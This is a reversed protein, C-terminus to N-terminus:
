SLCALCPSTVQGTQSEALTSFVIMAGRTAPVFFRPVAATGAASPALEELLELFQALM